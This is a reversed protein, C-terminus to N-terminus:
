HLGPLGDEPFRDHDEDKQAHSDTALHTRLPTNMDPALLPNIEAPNVPAVPKPTPLTVIAGKENSIRPVCGPLPQSGHVIDVLRDRQRLSGDQAEASRMTVTATM